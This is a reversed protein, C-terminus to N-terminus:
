AKTKDLVKEEKNMREMGLYDHKGNEFIIRKNVSHIIFDIVFHKVIYFFICLSM